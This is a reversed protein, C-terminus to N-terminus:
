KEMIFREERKIELVIDEISKYSTDLIYKCDIKKIKLNM